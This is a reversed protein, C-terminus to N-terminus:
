TPTLTLTSNSRFFHNYVEEQAQDSWDCGPPLPLRFDQRESHGAVMTPKYSGLQKELGQDIYLQRLPSGLQQLLVRTGNHLLEWADYYDLNSAFEFNSLIMRGAIKLKKDLFTHRLLRLIFGCVARAHKKHRETDNENVSDYRTLKTIKINSYM